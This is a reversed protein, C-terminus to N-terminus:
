TVKKPYPQINQVWLAAKAARQRQIRIAREENRDRPAPSADTM